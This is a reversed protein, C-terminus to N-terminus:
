GNMRNNRIRSKKTKTSAIILYIVVLFAVFAVIAIESGSYMEMSKKDAPMTATITLFINLLTSM